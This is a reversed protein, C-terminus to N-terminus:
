ASLPALREGVLRDAEALDVEDVHHRGTTLERLIADQAAGRAFARAYPMRTFTVMAYRPMFREPHREALLRGLERRLLFEPDAVSDRMEVYNELAMAMIAEANPRRRREFEAFTAAMDTGNEELLGALEVADEFACNMGQGHFPVMAHAADGILLARGDLHWRDLYLTALVGVPNRAFDADFDPMLALADPFERTFFERAERPTPITAFGPVGDHALFLTVTFHVEANPLAICMDNGRPWIHLANAEIAFPANAGEDLLQARQAEPLVSLSPIELEKYGHGLFETREGL